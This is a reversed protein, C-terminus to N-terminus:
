EEKVVAILPPHHGQRHRWARRGVSDINGATCRLRSREPEHNDRPNAANPEELRFQTALQLLQPDAIHGGRDFSGRVRSPRVTAFGVTRAPHECVITLQFTGTVTTKPGEVIEYGPIFAPGPAGDAGSAGTSGPPGPVGGGEILYGVVDILVDTTPGPTGFADYVSFADRGSRSRRRHLTAHTAQPGRLTSAERAFSPDRLVGCGNGGRGAGCGPRLQNRAQQEPLHAQLRYSRFPTRHVSEVLSPDLQALLDLRNEISPNHGPTAWVTAILVGTTQLVRATESM